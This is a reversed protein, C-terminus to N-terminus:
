SNELTSHSGEPVLAEFHYHQHLVQYSQFDRGLPESAVNNNFLKLAFQHLLEFNMNEAISQALEVIVGPSGLKTQLGIHRKAVSELIKIMHQHYALRFQKQEISLAFIAGVLVM